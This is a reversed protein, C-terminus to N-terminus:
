ALYSAGTAPLCAWAGSSRPMGAFAGSSDRLIRGYGTPDALEATLVTVAAGEERHRRRLTDLTSGKLLPVDGALVLVDHRKTLEPLVALARSSHGRGYGHVGYAIRLRSPSDHKSMM